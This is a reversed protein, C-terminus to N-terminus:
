QMAEATRTVYPVFLQSRLALDIEFLKPWKKGTVLLRDGEEDYAIGNLVDVPPDRDEPGLLGTLDIWGTVAGDGPDVIAIVDTQWVNAYVMGRVYELENLWTIPGQEDHVLVQGVEQFTNPDWFHLTASGDSMILRSGDHTIGWGETPYGFTGLEEFSVKDYLFGLGSTWTLQIIRKEWITIGEGFYEMPLYHVQLPDGSELEVKRLTSEGWLGTGEYLLGDEFVLGQTFAARDHPYVNVIEYTYIPVTTSQAVRSLLEAAALATQEPAPIV